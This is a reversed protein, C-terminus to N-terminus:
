LGAKRVGFSHAREIAGVLALATCKHNIALSGRKGTITIEEGAITSIEVGTVRKLDSFMVTGVKMGQVPQLREVADAHQRRRKVADLYRRAYYCDNGFRGFEFKGLDVSTVDSSLKLVAAVHPIVETNYFLGLSLADKLAGILILQRESPLFSESEYGLWDKYPTEPLAYAAVSIVSANACADDDQADVQEVERQPEVAGPKDVLHAAKALDHEEQYGMREIGLWKEESSTTSHMYHLDNNRRFASVVFHGQIPNSIILARLTCDLGYLRFNGNNVSDYFGHCGVTDECGLPAFFLNNYALLKIPKAGDHTTNSMENRLSLAGQGM